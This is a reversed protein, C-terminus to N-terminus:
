RREWIATYALVTVTLFLLTSYALWWLKNAWIIEVFLADYIFSLLLKVTLVWLVLAIVRLLLDLIGYIIGKKFPAKLSHTVSNLIKEM